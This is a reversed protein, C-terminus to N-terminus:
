LCFCGPGGVGVGISTIVLISLKVANNGIKRHLLILMLVCEYVIDQYGFGIQVPSNQGCEVQFCYVDTSNVLLVFCDDM